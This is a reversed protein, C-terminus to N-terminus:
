AATVYTCQTVFQDFRRTIALNPWIAFPQGGEDAHRSRVMVFPLPAGFVERMVANVMWAPLGHRHNIRDRITTITEFGSPVTDLYRLQELRSTRDEVQALAQDQEAQKREIVALRPLLHRVLASRVSAKRKASLWRDRNMRDRYWVLVESVTTLSTTTSKASADAAQRALIAPLTALMTRTNIGPYDGAKGWRQRFVVHWAGRTRDTTSYRFRLERHRIDRLQSAYGAAYRRIEADSLTVTLTKSASM